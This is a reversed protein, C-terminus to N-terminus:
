RDVEWKGADLKAAIESVAMWRSSESADVDSLEASPVGLMESAQEDHPEVVEWTRGSPTEYRDEPEITASM